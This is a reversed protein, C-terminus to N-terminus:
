SDSPGRQAGTMTKRTLSAACSSCASSRKKRYLYRGVLFMVALGALVISAVLQFSADM